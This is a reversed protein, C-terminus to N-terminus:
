STEEPQFLVPNIAALLTHIQATSIEQEKNKASLADLDDNLKRRHRAATWGARIDDCEEQTVPQVCWVNSSSSHRGTKRSFAEESGSGSSVGDVVVRTKTLRVVQTLREVRPSITCYGGPRYWVVVKDGVKLDSINAM